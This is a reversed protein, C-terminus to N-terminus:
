DEPFPAIRYVELKGGDRLHVPALWAPTRGALMAAALSKPAKGAYRRLEGSDPSFLLYSAGTRAILRRAEDPQAMYTAIVKRMGDKNRHHSTGIVRHPTRALIFPGFDLPAFITATPLAQLADAQKPTIVAMSPAREAEAQAPPIFLPAANTAIAALGAPTVVSLSVALVVRLPMLRLAAIRPYIWAILWGNGILAFLHATSMARMVMISIAVAGLHLGLLSLWQLRRDKDKEGLTAAALGIGGVLSPLVIIFALTVTQDWLPLGEQIARYWVSYVLPDLTRFPGALCAGGTAAFLAAAATGAFIAPLLRRPISSNGLLRHGGALLMPVLLLPGLYVPSIADCHSVLSQSWGRTLLLLLVSGGALLAAYRILRHWEEQRAGHRLTLIAGALAAYPLGESSIHLWLAMAAGMIWGGKRPDPHLLGWLLGTATAIQWGHHDIRMPVLQVIVPFATGLLVACLLAFGNGTFQRLAAFLGLAIVGLTLMPVVACAALEAAAQGILPRLAVIIAAIPLDVLRSWHMPGGVPPNIRHQSVDFWSQGALFDRVQVLRMADDPDRFEMHAIAHASLGLWLAAYGLWLALLLWLANHGRDIWPTRAAPLLDAHPFPSNM